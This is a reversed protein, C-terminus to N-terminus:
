WVAFILKSTPKSSRQNMPSKSIERTLAISYRKLYGLLDVQPVMERRVLTSGNVRRHTAKKKSRRESADGTWVDAFIWGGETPASAVDSNM